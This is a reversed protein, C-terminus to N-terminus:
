QWPNVHRYDYYPAINNAKIIYKAENAMLRIVDNPKKTRKRSNVWLKEKKLNIEEYKSM